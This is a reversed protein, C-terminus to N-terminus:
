FAAGAQLKYHIFSQLIYAIIILCMDLIILINYLNASTNM